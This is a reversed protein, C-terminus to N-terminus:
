LIHIQKFSFNILLINFKEDVNNPTLNGWLHVIYHSMDLLYNNSVMGTRIKYPEANGPPIIISEWKDTIESLQYFSGVQVFVIVVLLIKLLKNDAFVKSVSSLYGTNEIHLNQKASM